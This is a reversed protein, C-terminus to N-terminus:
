RRPKDLFLVIMISAIIAAMIAAVLWRMIM